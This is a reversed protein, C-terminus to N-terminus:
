VCRSTYLLCLYATGLIIQSDKDLHKYAVGFLQYLYETCEPPMLSIMWLKLEVQHLEENQSLDPKRWQEAGWVNLITPFGQRKYVDEKGTMREVFNKLSTFAGSRNREEEVAEM